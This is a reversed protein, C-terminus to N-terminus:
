SQYPVDGDNHDDVIVVPCCLSEIRIDPHLIRWLLRRAQNGINLRGAYNYSRLMILAYQQQGKRPRPNTLMYSTYGPVTGWAGQFHEGGYKKACTYNKSIYFGHGYTFERWPM